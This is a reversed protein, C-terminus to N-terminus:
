CCLSNVIFVCTTLFVTLAKVRSMIGLMEYVFHEIANEQFSSNPNENMKWKFSNRISYNIILWNQNIYHNVDYTLIPQRLPKVDYTLIPKHLPEVDYLVVFWLRLNQHDLENVCIYTVQSHQEWQVVSIDPYTGFAELCHTIMWLIWISMDGLIMALMDSRALICWLRPICFHNRNINQKHSSVCDISKYTGFFM